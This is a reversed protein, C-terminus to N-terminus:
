LTSREEKALEKYMVMTGELQSLDPRLSFRPILGVRVYGLSAYLREAADSATDLTLLTLRADRAEDEIALMLARAIGARRRSPHVLLKRIEARHPQNPPTALDLQVTGVIEGAGRAIVVCCRGAEVAPWVRERWFAAADDHSFPLIFSVSAGAHVCDHLLRGLSAVDAALQEARPQWREIQFSTKEIM